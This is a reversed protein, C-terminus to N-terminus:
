ILCMTFVTANNRFEIEICNVKFVEFIELKTVIISHHVFPNFAKYFKMNQVIIKCTLQQHQHLCNLVASRVQTADTTPV